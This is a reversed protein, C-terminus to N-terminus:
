EEDDDEFRFEWGNEGKDYGAWEDERYEKSAVLIRCQDIFDRRTDLLPQPPTGDLQPDPLEPAAPLEIKRADDLMQQLRHRQYELDVDSSEIAQRADAFWEESIEDAREGLTADFFPAIADDALQRLLDPRLAALADIETQEVGMKEVWDDARSEGSKLPTSPLGYERVQDPTLAVRHLVVDLDNFELMTLVHLKHAVSISMQHGSPDCDAFYLVVMPRGDTAGDRAMQYIQTDSIEGTPLYLDASYRMAIPDLVTRLSSKEGILVIRYPQVPEFDLVPAPLLYDVSCEDVDEGAVLVSGCPEPYDDPSLPGYLTYGTYDRRIPKDNREDIIWDFPIYGLWRAAKLADQGLWNWDEDTNTYPLGDPLGDPKPQGILIYHLGRLHKPPQLRLRDWTARLWKGDRHGAPTDVRLPDNNAALVTVHDLKSAGLL